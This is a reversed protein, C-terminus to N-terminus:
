RVEKENEKEEHYCAARKTAVEKAWCNFWFDEEEYGYSEEQRKREHWEGKISM